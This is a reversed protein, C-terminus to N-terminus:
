VNGHNEWNFHSAFRDLPEHIIIPCVTYKYFFSKNILWKWIRYFLFPRSNEVNFHQEIIVIKLQTVYFRYFKCKM